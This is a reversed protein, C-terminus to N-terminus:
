GVKKSTNMSDAKLVPVNKVIAIKMSIKAMYKINARQVWFVCDLREIQKPSKM